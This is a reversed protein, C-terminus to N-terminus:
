ANLREYKQNFSENYNDIVHIPYAHDGPNIHIDNNTGTKM